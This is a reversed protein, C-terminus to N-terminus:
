THSLSRLYTNCFIEVSEIRSSTFQIKRMTAYQTIRISLGYFDDGAFDNKNKNAGSSHKKTSHIPM